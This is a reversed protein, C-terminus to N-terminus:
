DDDDDRYSILFVVEYVLVIIFTYNTEYCVFGFKGFLSLLGSPGLVLSFVAFILSSFLGFVLWRVEMTSMSFIEWDDFLKFIKSTILLLFFLPTVVDGAVVMCVIIFPIAITCYLRVKDTECCLSIIIMVSVAFRIIDSLVCPFPSDIWLSSNVSFTVNVFDTGLDTPAKLSVWTSDSLEMLSSQSFEYNCSDEVLKCQYGANFFRLPCRKGILVESVPNALLQLRELDSTSLLFHVREYQPVLIFFDGGKATDIEANFSHMTLKCSTGTTASLELFLDGLISFGAQYYCADFAVYLSSDTVEDNYRTSTPFDSFRTRLTVPSLCNAVLFSNSPVSPSIVRLQSPSQSNVDVSIEENLPLITHCSYLAILLCFLLTQCM